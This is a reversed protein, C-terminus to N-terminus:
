RRLCLRTEESSPDLLNLLELNLLEFPLLTPPPNPDPQKADSTM